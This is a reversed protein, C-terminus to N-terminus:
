KRLTITGLSWTVWHECGCGPITIEGKNQNVKAYVPPLGPFLISLAQDVRASWLERIDSGLTKHGGWQLFREQVKDLAVARLPSNHNSIMSILCKVVPNTTLFM